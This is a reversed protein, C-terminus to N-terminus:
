DDQRRSSLHWLQCDRCIYVHMHNGYTYHAVNAAAMAQRKTDFALKDNCPLALSEDNDLVYGQRRVM